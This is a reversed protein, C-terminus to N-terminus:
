MVTLAEELSEEPAEMWLSRMRTERVFFVRSKPKMQHQERSSM